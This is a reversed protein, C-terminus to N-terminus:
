YHKNIVGSPCLSKFINCNRVFEGISIDDAVAM